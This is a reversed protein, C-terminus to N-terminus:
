VIKSMTGDARKVFIVEVCNGGKFVIEPDGCRSGLRECAYRTKVAIGLDQGYGIYTEDKAEVTAKICYDGFCQDVDITDPPPPADLISSRPPRWATLKRRAIAIPPRIASFM